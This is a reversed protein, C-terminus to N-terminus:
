RLKGRTASGIHWIKCSKEQFLLDRIVMYYEPDFGDMRKKKGDYDNYMGREAAVESPVVLMPAILKAAPNSLNYPIGVKGPICLDKLDGEWWTVDSDAIAVFDAGRVLAVKWALNMSAAVGINKHLMYLDCESALDKYFGGGDETVIVDDAQKKWIKINDTAMKGLPANFTYTPVIVAIKM